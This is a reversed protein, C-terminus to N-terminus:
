AGSAGFSEAAAGAASAAPPEAMASPVLDHIDICAGVWEALGGDARRRPVAAGLHWRYRGDLGRFRYAVDLAQGTNIAHTWRAFAADLDDRHIVDNWGYGVSRAEDLGTYEYWRRNLYRARGDADAVWVIFDLSEALETYPDASAEARAAVLARLHDRVLSRTSALVEDGIEPRSSRSGRPEGGPVAATM